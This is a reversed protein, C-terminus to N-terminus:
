AGLEKRRDRERRPGVGRRARMGRKFFSRRYASIVLEACGKSSSYSRAGGYAEDESYWPRTRPERLVQGSTVCVICRVSDVHRTSELMTPRVWSCNTAYTGEIPERYSLRVLPQAAMHIVINQSSAPWAPVSHRWSDRIDGIESEMGEAVRGVTFLAPVTRRSCPM